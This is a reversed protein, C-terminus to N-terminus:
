PRGLSLKVKMKECVDQLEILCLNTQVNSILCIVILEKNRPRRPSFLLQKFLWMKREKLFICLRDYDKCFGRM